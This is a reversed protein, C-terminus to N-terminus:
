LLSFFVKPSNHPLNGKNQKPGVTPSEQFFDSIYFDKLVSIQQIIYIEPKLCQFYIVIVKNSTPIKMKNFFHWIPLVM